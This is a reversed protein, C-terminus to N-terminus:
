CPTLATSRLVVQRGQMLPDAWLALASAGAFVVHAFEGSLLHEVPCARGSPATLVRAAVDGGTRWALAVQDDDGVALQPWYPLGGGAAVRRDRFGWHKASSAHALEVSRGRSWAVLATGDDTLVAAPYVAGTSDPIVRRQWRRGSGLVVGALVTHGGARPASWSVLTEGAPDSAIVPVNFQQFPAAIETQDLERGLDTPASWVGHGPDGVAVDVALLEGQPDLPGGRLLKQWEVVARGRGAVVVEPRMLWRGSSALVRPRSWRQGTRSTAVQIAFRHDVPGEWAVVSTGDPAMAIAPAEVTQGASSVTVPRGWPSRASARYAVQVSPDLEGGVPAVAGSQWAVVAAGGARVAIQPFTGALLGASLDVSRSWGGDQERWSATRISPDNGPGDMWAAAAGAGWGALAPYQVSRGAGLVTRAGSSPRVGAGASGGLVSLSAAVLVAFGRGIVSRM